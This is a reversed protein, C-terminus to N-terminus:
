LVGLTRCRSEFDEHNLYCGVFRREGTYAQRGHLVRWNDNILVDGAELRISLWRSPDDAMRQLTGYAEYFHAMEDGPLLMPSRDYNNLSIQEFQGQADLRLAPRSARLEVGPEIYHAPVNVSTLLEFHEPHSRQLDDAIARGDVIISEGGTGTRDSCCFMQLGPADHSYTGDTHPALFSQTYATDDHADIDSALDWLSGFITTRAYGIRNTLADAQAHTGDFDSLRAVGWTALDRLWTALADDDDLVDTVPQNTLSVADPGSWPVAIAAPQPDILRELTAMTIWTSDPQDSWTLELVDGDPGDTIAAGRAREPADGLANIRRQRTDHNFSIPDESHDRLWRWTLLQSTLTDNTITVGDAAVDARWSM